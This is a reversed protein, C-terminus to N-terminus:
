VSPPANKWFELDEKVVEIRENVSIKGSTIKTEEVQTVYIGFLAKVGYEDPKLRYSFLFERKLRFSHRHTVNSANEVATTRSRQNRDTPRCDTVSM